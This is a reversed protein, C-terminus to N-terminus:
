YASDSNNEEEESSPDQNIDAQYPYGSSGFDPQLNSPVRGEFNLAQGPGPEFGERSSAAFNIAVSLAVLVSLVPNIPYIYYAVLLFVLRFLSNSFISMAQGAQVFSMYVILLLCVIMSIPNKPSLFKNLEKFGLRNLFNNLQQQTKM